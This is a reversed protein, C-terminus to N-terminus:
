TTNYIFKCAIRFKSIFSDIVFEQNIDIFHTCALMLNSSNKIKANLDDIIQSYDEKNEIKSILESGDILLLKPYLKYLYNITSKSGIIASNDNIYPLFVDFVGYVNDFFLKIFPLVILSLTNCAFIIKEVNKSRLYSCIYLARKLLFEKSKEGYPFYAKDM